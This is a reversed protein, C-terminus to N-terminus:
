PLDFVLVEAQKGDHLELQTENTVKLGDGAQLTIGNVQLAGRAVHIYTRRGAQL